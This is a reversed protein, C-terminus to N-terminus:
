RDNLSIRGPNTELTEGDHVLEGFAQPPHSGWGVMLTASATSNMPLLPGRMASAPLHPVHLQGPGAHFADIRWSAFGAFFRDPHINLRAMTAGDVDWTGTFTGVSGGASTLTRVMPQQITEGDTFAARVIQLRGSNLFANAIFRNPLMTGSLYEVSWTSHGSAPNSFTATGVNRASLGPDGFYQTDLAIDLHMWESAALRGSSAWAVTATGHTVSPPTTPFQINVTIPTDARDAMPALTGNVIHGGSDLDLAALELQPHPSPGGFTGVFYGISYMTNGTGSFTVPLSAFIDDMSVTDTPNLLGSITGTATSSSVPLPGIPFIVIPTTMPGDVGVVSAASYGDKNVTVDVVSGAIQLTVAGSSDTTGEVFTTSGAVEVRVAAGALPTRATTAAQDSAEV